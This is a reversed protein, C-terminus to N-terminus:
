FMVVMINMASQGLKATACTLLKQILAIHKHGLYHDRYKRNKM